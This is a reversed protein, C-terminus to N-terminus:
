KHFLAILYLMTLIFFILILYVAFIPILKKIVINLKAKDVSKCKQKLEKFLRYLEVFFEKSLSLNFFSIMFKGISQKKSKKM